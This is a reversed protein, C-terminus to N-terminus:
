FRPLHWSISRCWGGSVGTQRTCGAHCATSRCIRHRAMNQEWCIVLRSQNKLVVLAIFPIIGGALLTCLGPFFIQRVLSISGFLACVSCVIWIHARLMKESASKVVM